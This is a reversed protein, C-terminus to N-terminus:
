GGDPAAAADGGDCGADPPTECGDLYWRNCDEFGDVCGEISCLGNECRSEAHQAAGPCPNFCRGCHASDSTYHVECGDQPDGNCDAYGAACGGLTCRGDHGCTATANTFICADCSTKSACGYRPDNIAVCVADGSQLACRKECQCYGGTDRLKCQTTGLLLLLPLAAPFAQALRAL